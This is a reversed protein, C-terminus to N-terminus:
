RRGDPVTREVVDRVLALATGIASLVPANASVRVRMGLHAGVTHALASAGGGGAIIETGVRSMGRSALLEEVVRVAREAGAQLVRAAAEEPRARLLSGIAGFATAASAPDGRAFDDEAVQGAANAACTLTIAVRRGSEDVLVAYDDPDGAVPSELAAQVGNLRTFCAYPMGALHASRPGVDHVAGGRVRVMSGGAVGITRVDVTRLFLRHGGVEATRLLARGHQIASV